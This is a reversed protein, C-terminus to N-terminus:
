CIQNITIGCSACVCKMMSRGNKAKVHKEYGPVCDSQRRERVCYSKM